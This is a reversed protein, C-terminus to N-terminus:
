ANASELDDVLQSLQVYVAGGLEVEGWELVVRRLLSDDLHLAQFIGDQYSKFSAYVNDTDRRRKDPPCLRLSLQLPVEPIKLEAEKVLIFSEFKAAHRTATIGRRDFRGNPSLRRDPWPFKM